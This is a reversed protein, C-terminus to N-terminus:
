PTASPSSEPCVWGGTRQTLPLSCQGTGTGPNLYDGLGHSSSAGQTPGFVELLLAAILGILINM